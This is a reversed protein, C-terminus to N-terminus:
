AYEENRTFKCLKIIAPSAVVEMDVQSGDITRNKEEV